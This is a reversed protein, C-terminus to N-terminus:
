DVLNMWFYTMFLAVKTGTAYISSPLHHAGSCGIVRVIARPHLKVVREDAADEIAPKQDLELEGRAPEARDIARAVSAVLSGLGLERDLYKVGLEGAIRVHDLPEPALGGRQRVQAIRVRDGGVLEALSGVAREVDHHLQQVPLAEVLQKVGAPR